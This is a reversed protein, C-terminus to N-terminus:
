NCYSLSSSDLEVRVFREEFHGIVTNPFESSYLPFEIRLLSDTVVYPHSVDDIVLSGYHVDVYFVNYCTDFLAYYFGSEGELDDFQFYDPPDTMDSRWATGILREDNGAPDV